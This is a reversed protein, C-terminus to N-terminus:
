QVFQNFSIWQTELLILIAMKGKELESQIKQTKEEQNLDSDGNVCTLLLGGIFLGLGFFIRRM